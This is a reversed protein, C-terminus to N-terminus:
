DIKRKPYRVLHIYSDAWEMQAQVVEMWSPLEQAIARGLCHEPRPNRMYSILTRYMCGLKAEKNEM